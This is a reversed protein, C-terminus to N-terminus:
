SNNWNGASIDLVGGWIIQLWGSHESVWVDGGFCALDPRPKWLIIRLELTSCGEFRGDLRWWRPNSKLLSLTSFQCM